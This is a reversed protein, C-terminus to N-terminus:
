RHSDRDFRRQPAVHRYKPNQCKTKHASPALRPCRLIATNFLLLRELALEQSGLGTTWDGSACDAWDISIPRLLKGQVILAGNGAALATPECFRFTSSM